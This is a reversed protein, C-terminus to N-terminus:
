VLWVDEIGTWAEDLIGYTSTVDFVNMTDEEEESDVTIIISNIAQYSWSLENTSIYAM